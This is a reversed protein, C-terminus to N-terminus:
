GPIAKRFQLPSQDFHRRFLRSFYFQSEFGCAEAIEAISKQTNSLQQTAMQLRRQIVWEMPSMGTERKFIRGFYTPNLGVSRAWEPLTITRSLRAAAWSEAALVKDVVSRDALSRSLPPRTQSLIYGLWQLIAGGITLDRFSSKSTLATLVKEFEVTFEKPNKWHYCRKFHRHLLANAASGKQFAISASLSVHPKAPDHGYIFEDGGCVILLDGTQLNWKKGNVISWCSSKEVFFFSVMDAALRARPVSWEPYGAYRGFWHVRLGLETQFALKWDHHYPLWAM